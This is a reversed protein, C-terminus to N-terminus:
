LQLKIKIDSIAKLVRICKEELENQIKEAGLNEPDTTELIYELRAVIDKLKTQTSFEHDIIDAQVKVYEASSALTRSVKARQRREFNEGPAGGAEAKLSLVEIIWKQVEDTQRRTSALKMDEARIRRNERISRFSAVALFVTVGALILTAIVVPNNWESIVMTM